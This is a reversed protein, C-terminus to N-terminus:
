LGFLPSSHSAAIRSGRPPRLHCRGNAREGGPHNVSSEAFLLSHPSPAFSLGAGWSRLFRRPWIQPPCAQSRMSFLKRCRVGGALSSSAFCAALSFPLLRDHTCRARSRPNTICPIFPLTGGNPRESFMPGHRLPRAHRPHPGLMAWCM